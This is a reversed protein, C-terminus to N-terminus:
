RTTSAAAPMATFTPSSAPTKVGLVLIVTIFLMEVSIIFGGAVGALEAESLERDAQSPALINTPVSAQNITETRMTKRRLTSKFKVKQTGAKTSSKFASPIGNSGVPM